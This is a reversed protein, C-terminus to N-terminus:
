LFIASIVNENYGTYCIIKIQNLLEKVKIVQNLPWRCPKKVTFYSKKRRYKTLTQKVTVKLSSVM